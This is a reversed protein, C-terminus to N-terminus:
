RDQEGKYRWYNYVDGGLVSGYHIHHFGLDLMEKKPGFPDKATEEGPCDIVCGGTRTVRNMYGLEKRYDDGFIHGSMVIDFWEDPFPLNELTGDVVYVNRIELRDVKQRLYERLREVPECAYVWKALPAVALALRGTGSGIDLVVKGSFDTMSLLRSPCWSKIYPLEDMITPYLYVMFTDLADLVAIECERAYEASNGTPASAVLDDFHKRCDPCKNTFLWVVAPNAALAVALKQNFAADGNAALYRIIWADMLLLSNFSFQRADIWGCSM